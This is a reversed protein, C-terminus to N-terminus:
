GYVTRWNPPSNMQATFMPITSPTPNLHPMKRLQQSTKSVPGAGDKRQLTTAEQVDDEQESTQRSRDKAMTQIARNSEETMMRDQRERQRALENVTQFNQNTNNQINLQEITSTYREGAIEQVVMSQDISSQPSIEIISQNQMSQNIVNRLVSYSMKVSADEEKMRSTSYNYDTADGTDFVSLGALDLAPVTPGISEPIEIYEPEEQKVEINNLVPNNKALSGRFSGPSSGQSNKKVEEPSENATPLAKQVADSAIQRTNQQSKGTVNVSVNFNNTVNGSQSAALEEPKPLEVFNQPEQPKLALVGTGFTEELEQNALKRKDDM